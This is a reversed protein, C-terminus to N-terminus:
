VRKKSSSKLYAKYFFNGFLIMYSFYMLLGVAVDMDKRACPTGVARVVLSYVNVTVGMIMQLIQLSTIVVSISRPVKVGTAKLAYYAYMIGHIFYNMSLFWRNSPDMSTYTFWTFLLVSTHHYWHLFILPQKRLVVFATDFLEAVKSWASLLSWFATAITQQERSCVSKHFGSDETLLKAIEPFTRLFGAISFIALSVNWLFLLSKLKFPRRNKMMMQGAHIILIYMLSFIFSYHWHQEMWKVSKPFNFKEWELPKVHSEPHFQLQIEM